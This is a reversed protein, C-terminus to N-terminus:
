RVKAALVGLLNTLGNEFAQTQDSAGTIAHVVEHLLTGAFRELNNLQDRKIVIRGHAPEWVGTADSEYGVRM